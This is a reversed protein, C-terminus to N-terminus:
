RSAHFYDLCNFLAICILRQEGSAIVRLSSLNFSSPIDKDLSMLKQIVSPTTYFHNIKLREVVEWFRGINYLIIIISQIGHIYSNFYFKYGPGIYNICVQVQTCHQVTMFCQQLVM